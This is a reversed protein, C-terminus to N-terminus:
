KTHTKFFEIAKKINEKKEAKRKIEAEKKKEEDSKLVNDLGKTLDGLGSAMFGGLKGISQFLSGTKEHDEKFDNLIDRMDVDEYLIDRGKKNGM